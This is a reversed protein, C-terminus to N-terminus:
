GKFWQNDCATNRVRSLISFQRPMDKLREMAMAMVADKKPSYEIRKFQYERPSVLQSDRMRLWARIVMMPDGSIGPEVETIKKAILESNAWKRKSIAIGFDDKLRRVASHRDIQDPKSNNKIFTM